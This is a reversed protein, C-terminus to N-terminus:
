ASGGCIADLGFLYGYPVFNRCCCVDAQSCKVFFWPKLAGQSVVFDSM